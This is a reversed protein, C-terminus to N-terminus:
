EYVWPRQVKDQGIFTDIEDKNTNTLDILDLGQMLRSQDTPNLEFEITLGDSAM